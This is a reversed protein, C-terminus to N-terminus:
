RPDGPSAPLDRGMCISTDPSREYEGYVPIREYGMRTYLAIAAHQYIGTELVVRSIGLDRVVGELAVVLARGIGTGRHTPKVYMRKLEAAGDPGVRVAGCGVPEDDLWAVFFGGSGPATQSATLTFHTAGPKPYLASLEANLEAILAAAVPSTVEDRRLELAM